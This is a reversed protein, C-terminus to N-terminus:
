WAWTGHILDTGIALIGLNWATVAVGVTGLALPIAVDHPWPVVRWVAYCGVLVVFKLVALALVGSDSLMPALFPNTEAVGATQIGVATTLLDGAGFFAVALLWLYAHRVRRDPALDPRRISVLPRRPAM